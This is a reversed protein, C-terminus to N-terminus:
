LPQLLKSWYDALCSRVNVGDLFNTWFKKNDSSSLNQWKNLRSSRTYNSSQLIQQAYRNTKKTIYEFIEDTIIFKCIDIPSISQSLDPQIRGHASRNFCQQKNHYAGWLIQGSNGSIGEAKIEM